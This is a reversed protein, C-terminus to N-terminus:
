STYLNVVYVGVAQIGDVRHYLVHEVVKRSYKKLLIIVIQMQSIPRVPQVMSRTLRLVQRMLVSCVDHRRVQSVYELM